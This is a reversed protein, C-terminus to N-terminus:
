GVDLIQVFSQVVPYSRPFLAAVCGVFYVVEARTRGLGSPPRALNEAWLLRNTGAEGSINHSVVIREDLAALAKPLLGLGAMEGRTLELIRDVAVGSPCAFTCAGCLLCRYFQAATNEGPQELLRERMARLLAVRARPSDTENLSLRYDPCTPLCLSCRICHRAEEEPARIEM